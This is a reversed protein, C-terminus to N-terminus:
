ALAFTYLVEDVFVIGKLKGTPIDSIYCHGVNIADVKSQDVSLDTLTVAIRATHSNLKDLLRQKADSSMGMETIRTWTAREPLM